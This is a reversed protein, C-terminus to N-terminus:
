FFETNNMVIDREFILNDIKLIKHMTNFLHYIDNDLEFVNIIKNCIGLNMKLCYKYLQSIFLFCTKYNKM